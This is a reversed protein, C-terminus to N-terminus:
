LLALQRFAWAPAPDQGRAALRELDLLAQKRQLGGLYGTLAGDAAIVRHCPVVIPVPTRAVAGAAVRVRDPALGVRRALQGYSVTEGYPIAQLEDWVQRQLSNGDLALSLEFRRRTGAFFQELQRFAEEFADPRQAAEDLPDGRGPFRVARLGRAGGVLTLPGLPSGYVAWQVSGGARVAGRAGDTGAGSAAPSSSTSM